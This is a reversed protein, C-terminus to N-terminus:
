NHLYKTSKEWFESYLPQQVTLNVHKLVFLLVGTSTNYAVGLVCYQWLVFDFSILLYTFSHLVMRPHLKWIGSLEVSIQDLM